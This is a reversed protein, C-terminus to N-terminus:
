GQLPIEAIRTYTAGGPGLDSKMLVVSGVKVAGFSSDKHKELKDALIKKGGSSRFRGLTLHPVFKRNERKFGLSATGDEIKQQLERLTGDGSIGAWLVRPSKTDPFVGVGSVEIDFASVGTCCKELVSVISGATEESINGLFKLTLHINEPKVWRVDAGCSKLEEQLQSLSERVPGELEIAIFSRM